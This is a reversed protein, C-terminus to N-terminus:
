FLSCKESNGLIEAIINFYFLTL